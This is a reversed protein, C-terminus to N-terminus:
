QNQVVKFSREFVLANKAAKCKAKHPGKTSQQNKKKRM